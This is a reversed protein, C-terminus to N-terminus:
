EPVPKNNKGHRLFRFPQLEPPIPMFVFTIKNGGGRGGMYVRLPPPPSGFVEDLNPILM